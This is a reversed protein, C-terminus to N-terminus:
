KGGSAHSVPIFRARVRWSTVPSTSTVYSGPPPRTIVRVSGAAVQDIQPLATV